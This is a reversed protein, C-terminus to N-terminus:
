PPPWFDMSIACVTHFSFLECEKKLFDILFLMIHRVNGNCKCYKIGLEQVLGFTINCCYVSAEGGEGKPASIAIIESKRKTETQNNAFPCMQGMTHLHQCREWMWDVGLFSSKLKHLLGALLIQQTFGMLLGIASGQGSWLQKQPDMNQLLKKYSSSMSTWSKDAWPPIEQPFHLPAPPQCQCPLTPQDEMCWYRQTSPIDLFAPVCWLGLGCSTPFSHVATPLSACAWPWPVARLCTPGQCARCDYPPFCM